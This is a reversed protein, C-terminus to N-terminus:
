LGESLEWLIGGLRRKGPTTFHSHVRAVQGPTGTSTAKPSRRSKQNENDEDSFRANVIFIFLTSESPQNGGGERAGQGLAGHPLGPWLPLTGSGCWENRVESPGCVKVEGLPQSTLYPSSPQRSARVGPSPDKSALDQNKKSCRLLGNSNLSM